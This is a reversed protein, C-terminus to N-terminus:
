PSIGPKGLLSPRREAYRAMSSPTSASSPSASTSTLSSASCSPSGGNAWSSCPSSSSSAGYGSGSARPQKRKPIAISSSMLPLRPTKFSPTAISTSPTTRRRTTVSALASLRIASFCCELPRTNSSDRLFPFPDLCLWAPYDHYSLCPASGTM